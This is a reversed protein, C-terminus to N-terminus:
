RMTYTTTLRALLLEAELKPLDVYFMWQVSAALFLTACLTVDLLSHHLAVTAAPFANRSSTLGCENDILDESKSRM